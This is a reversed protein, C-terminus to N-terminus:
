EKVLDTIHGDNITVYTDRMRLLEDCDQLTISDLNIGTEQIM